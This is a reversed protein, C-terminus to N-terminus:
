RTTAYISLGAESTVAGSPFAKAALVGDEFSQLSHKASMGHGLAISQAPMGTGADGVRSGYCVIPGLNGLQIGLWYSGALLRLATPFPLRVFSRAADSALTVAETAGLLHAPGGEKGGDSYVM